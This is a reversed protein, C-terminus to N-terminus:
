ANPDVQTLSVTIDDLDAILDQTDNANIAADGYPFDVTIKATVVQGDDAETIASPAAAGDLLFESDVDLQLTSPSGDTVTYSVTDPVELAAVLNSGEAAITFRATTEISDGPVIKDVADTTGAYVWGSASGAELSLHGTSIDSGNVSQADSWYALTGAGGLLLVAATGAAIAGKTHKKM